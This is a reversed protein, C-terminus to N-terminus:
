KDFRTFFAGVGPLKAPRFTLANRTPNLDKINLAWGRAEPERGPARPM